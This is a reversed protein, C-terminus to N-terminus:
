EYPEPVPPRPDAKGAKRFIEARFQDCLDALTDADVDKLPWIAPAALRGPVHEAAVCNPTLWSKVDVRM